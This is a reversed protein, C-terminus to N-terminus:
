TVETERPLVLTLVEQPKACGGGCAAAARLQARARSVRGGPAHLARTLFGLSFRMLFRAEAAM